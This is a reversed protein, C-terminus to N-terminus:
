SVLRVNRSELRTFSSWHGRVVEGIRCGVALARHITLSLAMSGSNESNTCTLRTSWSLQVATVHLPVHFTMCDGARERRGTIEFWSELKDESEAKRSYHFEAEMASFLTYNLCLMRYWTHWNLPITSRRETKLAASTSRTSILIVLQSEFEPKFGWVDGYYSVKSFIRHRLM